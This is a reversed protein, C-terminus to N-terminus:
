GNIHQCLQHCYLDSFCVDFMKGFPYGTRGHIVEILLINNYLINNNNIIVGARHPPLM